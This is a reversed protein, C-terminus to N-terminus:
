NGKAAALSNDINEIVQEPTSIGAFLEDFGDAFDTWCETKPCTQPFNPCSEKGKAYNIIESLMPVTVKSEDIEVDM